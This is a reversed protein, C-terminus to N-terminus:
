SYPAQECQDPAFQCSWQSMRHGHRLSSGHGIPESEPQATSAGDPAWSQPRYPLGQPKTERRIMAMAEATFHRRKFAEGRGMTVM